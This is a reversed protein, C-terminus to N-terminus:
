GCLVSRLKDVSINGGCIVVVSTQDHWRGPDQLLAAVAVAASGEVLKRERALLLRIQEAITAEPILFFEDVVQRCVPYTISDEEFAGASADSLTELPEVTTYQGTRVSLAMEPSNAPQCGLVKAEPHVTKLYSGIGAILGGGGVTVFVNDVREPLQEAIEIAVTGQGGIVQPDNYPSIYTWGEEGARRRAYVESVFCDAGHKELDAGYSELAEVKAAVTNEPIVIRGERGTIKLARAVGLGHNGTSATIIPAHNDQRNLWVLKNLAGRAKFSGTHQESEMKLYVRGGVQRSLYNSYLLPTKLIHAEIRQRASIVEQFIDM